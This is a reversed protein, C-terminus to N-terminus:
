ESSITKEVDLTERGKKISVILWAIMAVSILGGVIISGVPGITGGLSYILSKIAANRGTFERTAGSQAELASFYMAITIIPALITGIIPGKM